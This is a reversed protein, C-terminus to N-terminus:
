ACSDIKLTLRPKSSFSAEALSGKNRLRVTAGEFEANSVTIERGGKTDDVDITFAIAQGPELSGINFTVRNDGDRVRPTRKIASTGAVMELPQFVEVGAGSATVDFILGAASGSLDLELSANEVACASVNKFTFRDKPAGEDFRVALDAHALGTTLAMIGAAFSSLGILRRKSSSTHSM